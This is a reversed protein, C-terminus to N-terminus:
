VSSASTYLLCIMDHIIQNSSTNVWYPRPFAQEDANLDFMFNIVSWPNYICTNGFVYGDYWQKLDDYRGAHGYYETMEKVEQETFGFHESYQRDLM